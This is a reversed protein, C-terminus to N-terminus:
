INVLNQINFKKKIGIILLLKMTLIKKIIMKFLKTCKIKMIKYFVNFNM